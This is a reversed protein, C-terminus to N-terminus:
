GDSGAHTEVDFLDDIEEIDFGVRSAVTSAGIRALVLLNETVSLAMEVAPHASGRRANGLLDRGSPEVINM